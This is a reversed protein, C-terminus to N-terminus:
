RLWGMFHTWLPLLLLLVLFETSWTNWVYIIHIYMIIDTYQIYSWTIQLCSIYRYITYIHILVCCVYYRSMCCRIYLAIYIIYDDHYDYYHVHQHSNLFGFIEVYITQIHCVSLWTFSTWHVLFHSISLAIYYYYHCCVYTYYYCPYIYIYLTYLYLETHM